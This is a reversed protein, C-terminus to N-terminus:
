ERSNMENVPKSVGTSVCNCREESENIICRHTTKRPCSRRSDMLGQHSKGGKDPPRPTQGESIVAKKITGSGAVVTRGVKDDDTCGSAVM